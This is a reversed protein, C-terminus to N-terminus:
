KQVLRELWVIQRHYQCVLGVVGLLGLSVCSVGFVLGLLVFCVALFHIPCIRVFVVAGPTQVPGM